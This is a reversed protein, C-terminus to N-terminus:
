ATEKVPASIWRAVRPPLTPWWQALRLASSVLRPQHLVRRIMRCRRQRRGITAAHQETWRRPLDTPWVSPLVQLFDALEFASQLAWAMGEGTFPEVYGAADGLALVRPAGLLKRRRTLRPTGRFVLREISWPAPQQCAALIARILIGPGGVEHCVLPDLAAALHTTADAYCVRGVYGGPAVSIHITNPDALPEPFTAAVGILAHRTIQWGTGPEHDLLTGGLGDCALILHAAVVVQSSYPTSTDRLTVTRFVDAPYAPNLTASTGSSFTVGHEVAGAVLASDLVSREIARGAPMPVLLQRSPASLAFRDVVQSEELLKALGLNELLPLASANLCGGCVKGRPFVARDVLLVKWGRRALLTAAASGAPGAGVVLVDWCSDELAVLSAGPAALTATM